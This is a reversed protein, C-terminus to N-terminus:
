SLAAPSSHASPLLCGRETVSLSSGRRVDSSDAPLSPYVADPRVYKAIM